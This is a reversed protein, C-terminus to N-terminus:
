PAITITLPNSVFTAAQGSDFLNVGNMFSPNFKAFIAYTGAAVQTGPLAPDVVNTQDWPLTYTQTAGPLISVSRTIGGCGFIPGFWTQSTGQNVYVTFDSCAGFELDAAQSATNTVTFTIPIAVGRAYHSHPTSVMFVLSSSTKPTSTVAGSPASDGGGCGSSVLASFISLAMLLLLKKM